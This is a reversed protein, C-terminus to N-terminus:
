FSKNFKNFKFFFVQNRHKEEWMKVKMATELRDKESAMKQSYRRKQNEKEMTKQNLKM